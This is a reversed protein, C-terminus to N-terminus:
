RPLDALIEEERIRMAEREDEVEHDYGLLHLIGHVTLYALERELSHEYEDAQESARGFALVVDGLYTPASPPLVFSAPDETQLPFSLVDTVEDLGRHEVNLERIREDEVITISLQYVGTLGDVVLCRGAVSRVLALYSAARGTQDVVELELRPESM